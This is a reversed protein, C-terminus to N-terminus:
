FGGRAQRSQQAEGLESQGQRATIIKDSLFIDVQSDTLGSNAAIVQRLFLQEEALFSDKSMYEFTKAIIGQNYLYSLYDPIPSWLGGLTTFNPAANQNTLIVTYPQEPAPIIRFTYIGTGSDLLPALDFPQNQVSEQGLNLRIGMEHSVKNADIIVAKEVWGLPQIPQFYGGGVAGVNEWTVSGDTTMGSFTQNWTPQLAGTIGAVTCQQQNGHSDVLITGYPVALLTTWQMIAYDTTGTTANFATISRNWRWAFPPGLIFQRVWDGITLAPENPISLVGSLPAGRALITAYSISRQLTNSNAM